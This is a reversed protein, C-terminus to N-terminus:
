VPFTNYSVTWEKMQFSFQCSLFPSMFHLSSVACSFTFPSFSVIVFSLLLPFVSLVLCVALVFWNLAGRKRNLALLIEATLCALSMLSDCVTIWEAQFHGTLCAQCLLVINFLTPIPGFAHLVSVPARSLWFLVLSTNKFISIERVLQFFYHFSLTLRLEELPWKLSLHILWCLICAWKSIHICSQCFPCM